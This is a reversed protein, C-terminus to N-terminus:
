VKKLDVILLQLERNGNWENIDVEFVIDIKDGIKLEKSWNVGNGNGGNGNGCLNWGIIKRIRPTHHKVNIRLHKGDKGMTELNVVTIGRALYRPKPNGQGFPKFKDLVDYLEWKVDELTLEADINLVPTMNLNKTQELFKTTLKEKFEAVSELTKLTFGCAMPHGGFKIFCEPMSQLNAIMNFGEISRGSGVIQGQNYTLAIVPKSYKEKLRSAILGVIGTAWNESIVFLIPASPDIKIQGTAESVYEETKKQRENNNNNLEFALDIADAGSEAVLLKYAVNAHGMRGAANIRPAIRFGITDADIERKLSGDNEMLRAELLLKQLGIRRTKNLVILGYKTLTRTEGLLPVMDAVSAIAVMDLLWKELADHTQGNPLLENTRKHTELIGQTLKFAVAGGCLTQDPYTENPLKPHIIAYAPPVIAPISHHDTIIVDINLSNALEVEPTNSIGCDCTIVLKTGEDALLKVTNLNLGYGDTERHPLFVSFNTYNLARFIATMIVASSVGDADYDGHVTVRENTEIARMIRTVAKEMDKFLFPSHVNQSYDPDLFEDIEKQTRLQRHYLLTSVIAPLEPHEDFFNQPPTERVTWKKNM